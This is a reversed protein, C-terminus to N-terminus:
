STSGGASFLALDYGTVTEDTLPQITGYGPLEKGASRESAFPVIESAEFGRRELTKLMIQGVAGTAGVVAVRPASM